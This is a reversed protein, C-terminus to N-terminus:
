IELENVKQWNIENLVTIKDEGIIYLYDDLYIARKAFIESVAKVLSLKNNQYSFIYGGRSGPLFFIKHKDDLLFAHHTNLIDSWSEELIYKDLEKPNDAKSVDFLSIKVQWNEKGVGLIKDKEIPHLYSSYGPIKLEGKLQPSQPNILDLVYFPDTQRFTVLYGKDKIFRASYIRETLCLDKVSGIIKLNKDLVYVDNASKGMGIRFGFWVFREGVTVAIRLNEQYEDLAFQNLPFGPVNGNAFIEFKDLNIKLIGTKEVERKKLNYYDVGRNNLENEIKLREDKDLPKYFKELIIQLELLKAQQSIDYSDLKEIKELVWQPFLDQCKEKLFQSVFRVMSEYYTYTIYIAKESMFVVSQGSSGVFSIKEEINGSTPEIVMALFTVDVPVPSTPHYIEQCSIEIPKEQVFIPKIPCPHREDISNKTVLYIKNKYLRSTVISNNKDLKIEWKKEPKKPDSVSYGTIEGESFIILINNTLLLDGSKEIESDLALDTPPFAKIVKTKTKEQYPPMIRERMIIPERWIPWFRKLSLYIEKGDTKVIDPEDIGPVQVNTESIREPLVSEETAMPTERLPVAEQITDSIGFRSTAGMLSAQEKVKELYSKFEKESAFKQIGEIEKIKEIIKEITQGFDPTPKFFVKDLSFLFTLTETNLNKFSLFIVALVILFVSILIVLGIKTEINKNLFNVM